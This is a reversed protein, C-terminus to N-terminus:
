GGGGAAATGAASAAAGVAGASGMPPVNMGQVRLVPRDGALAHAPVHGHVTRREGPLLSVYNDDWRIPAALAGSAFVGESLRTIRAEDRVVSGDPAMVLLLITNSGLDLVGLAGRRARVQNAM